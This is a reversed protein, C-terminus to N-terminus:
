GRTSWRGVEDAEKAVTWYDTIQGDRYLVTDMGCVRGQKGDLTVEAHWPGSVVGAREDVFPGVGFYFRLAQFKARHRTVWQRVAEPGDVALQDYDSPTVLHLRFSPAVLKLALEPRGNWMETWETWLRTGTEYSNEM